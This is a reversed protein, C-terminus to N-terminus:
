AAQAPSPADFVVTVEDVGASRLTEELFTETNRRARETLDSQAAAESLKDSAREYLQGDDTAHGSGLADGARDILGRDRNIVRTADPDLRPEDLTPPPLHVTARSGDESLQIGGSSLDSLDVTADVEGEAALVVREGSLWPPLVESTRETDVLTQFRGQAAEFRELDDIRTLVVANEHETQRTAFPNLSSLSGLLAVLVAGTAVVTTAALGLGILPWRPGRRRDVRPESLGM